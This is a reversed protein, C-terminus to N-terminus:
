GLLVGVVAVIGINVLSIPLFAKWGLNMLQNYKFRPLTWRIWVYIFMLTVVKATFVGISLLGGLISHDSPDTIFPFHWGGLFLTVLLGSMTIMAIYESLMYVALMMASYETHFGGVLEAESEALDFPLRNNEALACIFFMLTALLGTPLLWPNGGGFINWGHEIQHAVIVQPDLSGTMMVVLLITLGLTLEYSILQASARLAGLLSYKNNSAWGGLTIGYVGVSLVSMMFLVGIDLNVVQLKEDGIQNGFPVVAFALFPPVFVLLPGLYFLYKDASEPLIQEKMVFKILDAAPQLTGFPGVRNPGVRGQIFASVKREVYTFAPGITMVFGIAFVVKLAFWLWTM